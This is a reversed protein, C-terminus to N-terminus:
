VIHFEELAPIFNRNEHSSRSLKILSFRQIPSLKAWQDVTLSVQMEKAKQGVSDPIKADNEWDPHAEVPLDTATEGTAEQVLKKLIERYTKVEDTTQCPLALLKQRDETSFQNWQPLKLKIGCVDLKYRVRMPICRLSSAFDMEFQFFDDM